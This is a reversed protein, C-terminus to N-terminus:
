ARLAQDLDAILDDPHELGVSMRLLGEPARTQPGEVSARHEILSETGGLSTARTILRLRAALAMAAPRGGPVEFSLMGGFAAMQQSAVAHGPHTPLGPYHVTAVAAHGALFRAVAAAHDCHARMRCALSGAGRLVLWSDFPSPVGGVLTQALRVRRFFDDDERAIVAGGQVDSHGGLYKTTSHMVLDAGLALPRTLAPTAWTNDCAVRAGARHAIDAVRAIDTLRLRPNSPTEIWILRTTPRLAAEVAAPDTLDAAAFALGWREFIERLLKPTGYYADDPVVLHDGPSLAQLIAHTAAMGSAFAAAAAGGELAALCEELMRRNPNADRIYVYGGPFSGDAAREFTTSLHIPPSVAGTAADPRHGAHVTLTEFRM